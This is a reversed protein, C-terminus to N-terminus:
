VFPGAVRLRGPQVAISRQKRTAPPNSDWVVVWVMAIVVALAPAGDRQISFLLFFREEGNVRRCCVPLLCLTSDRWEVRSDLLQLWKWFLQMKSKRDMRDLLPSKLRFSSAWVLKERLREAFRWTMGLKITSTRRAKEREGWGSNSSSRLSQADCFAYCSRSVQPIVPSIVIRL